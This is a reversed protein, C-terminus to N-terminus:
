KIMEIRMDKSIAGIYKSSEKSTFDLSDWVKKEKESRTSLVHMLTNNELYETQFQNIM